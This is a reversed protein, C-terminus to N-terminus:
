CLLTCLLKLRFPSTHAIRKAKMAYTTSGDKGVVQQRRSITMPRSVQTAVNTGTVTSLSHPYALNVPTESEDYQTEPDDIPPVISSVFILTIGFVVIM